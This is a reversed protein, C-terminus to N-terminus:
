NEKLKNSHHRLYWDGSFCEYDSDEIPVEKWEGRNIYQSVMIIKEDIVLVTRNNKQFVKIDEYDRVLEFFSTASPNLVDKLQFNPRYQFSDGIGRMIVYDGVRIKKMLEVTNQIKVIEM